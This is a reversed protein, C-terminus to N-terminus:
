HWFMRPKTSSYWPRARPHVPLPLALARQIVSNGGLVLSFLLGGGWLLSPPLSPTLPGITRSATLVINHHTGSASGSAHRCHGAGEIVCVGSRLSFCVRSSEPRSARRGLFCPTCHWRCADLHSQETGLYGSWACPVIVRSESRCVPLYRCGGRGTAHKM